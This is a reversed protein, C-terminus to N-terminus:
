SAKFLIEASPGNSNLKSYVIVYRVMLIALSIRDRTFCYMGSYGCGTLCMVIILIKYRLADTILFVIALQACNSYTCIPYYKETVDESTLNRWPGILYEFTYPASVHCEKFFGIACLLITIKIWEKM